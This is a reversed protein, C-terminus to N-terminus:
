LVILGDRYTLSDKKTHALRLNKDGDALFYTLAKSSYGNVYNLKHLASVIHYEPNSYCFRILENVRHPDFRGGLNNPKISLNDFRSTELM